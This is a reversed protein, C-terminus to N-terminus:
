GLEGQTSRGAGLALDAATNGSRIAGEITAPLGTATWDGALFLNPWKTMAAPRKANEDPLAAFTARREKIIIWPPVSGDADILKAIDRWIREALEERSAEIWRDAASITASIRDPFSFLWEATGNIVGLLTPFGSPPKLKFHANVIARFATPTVIGPLVLRAVSGPVALIVADETALKVSADGFDLAQVRDGTLDLKRLQRDFRITAGNRELYSLAPDIFAAGLGQQAILPRCARGGRALTERMVAGALSSSAEAPDTNLAALFVPRVLREYLPGDCAIVEGLKQGPRERLLRMLPLYDFVKTGPVRRRKSLVWWPVPGNNLHLLWREGSALDAFAFEAEKPGVLEDESGTARL